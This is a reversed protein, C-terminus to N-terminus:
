KTKTKNTPANKTTDNTTKNIEDKPILYGPYNLAHGQSSFITTLGTISGINAKGTTSKELKSGIELNQIDTVSVKRVKTDVGKQAAVMIDVFKGIQTKVYIKIDALGFLHGTEHAPTQSSSLNDKTLWFGHNMQSHSKHMSGKTLDDPEIRIYNNLYEDSGTNKEAENILVIDSKESEDIASVKFRVIYETGNVTTKPVTVNGNEDVPNNWDNEINKGITNIDASTVQTGYFIYNSEVLVIKTGEPILWDAAEEKTVEHISAVGTKGSPDIFLLPNNNFAVYPSYFPFSSSFPDLSIFRGVRADYIRGGFDLDASTVGSWEDDKEKGNFTFSSFRTFPNSVSTNQLTSFFM